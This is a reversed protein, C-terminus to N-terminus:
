KNQQKLIILELTGCQKLGHLMQLIMNPTTMHPVKLRYIVMLEMKILAYISYFQLSLIRSHYEEGTIGIGVDGTREGEWIAEIKRGQPDTAAPQADATEAARDTPVHEEERALGVINTRPRMRETKHTM